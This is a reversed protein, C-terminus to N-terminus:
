TKNLIKKKVWEVDLNPSITENSVKYYDVKKQLEELKRFSERIDELDKDEKSM